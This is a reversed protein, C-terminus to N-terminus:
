RSFPGSLAGTVVDLDLELPNLKVFRLNAFAALAEAIQVETALGLQQVIQATTAGTGHAQRRVREAQDRTLTHRFVLIQLLDASDNPGSSAGGAPAPPTGTKLPRLQVAPCVVQASQGPGITGDVHQRAHRDSDADRRSAAVRW